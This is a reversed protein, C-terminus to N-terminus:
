GARLGSAGNIKAAAQGSSTPRLVTASISWLCSHAVPRGAEGRDQNDTHSHPEAAAPDRSNTEARAPGPRGLAVVNTATPSTTPWHPCAPRAHHLGQPAADSRDSAATARQPRENCTSAPSSTSPTASTTPRSLRNRGAGSGPSPLAWTRPSRRSPSRRCGAPEVARRSSPEFEEPRPAPM